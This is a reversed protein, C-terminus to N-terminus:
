QIIASKRREELKIVTSKPEFNKNLMLMYVYDMGDEIGNGKGIPLIDKKEGIILISNNVIYARPLYLENLYLYPGDIGADVSGMQVCFNCEEFQHILKLGSINVEYDSGVYKTNLMGWFKAPDNSSISLYILYEPIWVSVGGYLAELGLWTAYTDVNGNVSNAGITNIRFIDKDKSVYQLLFTNKIHEEFNDEPYSLKPMNLAFYKGEKETFTSFWLNLIFLMIIVAYILNLKSFNFKKQIIKMLVSCGVGSLAYTSLVFLFMSRKVHHAMSMGPVFKWFIYFLASGTAILLTTVGLIIFFLTRKKRWSGMSFILLIFAVAGIEGPNVDVNLSDKAEILNHFIRKPTNLQIKAGISDKYSFGIKKSSVERFELLPFLKISSLGLFVILIIFAVLISKILRRKFNKSILYFSFLCAFMISQYVFINLGGSLFQLSIIIGTLISYKLWKREYLAKWSFLLVLPVFGYVFYRHLDGRALWLAFHSFMFGIASIFAYRPNLKFNLMLCYMSIGSLLTTLIISLNVVAITPMILALITPYSIVSYVPHAHFPTGGLSHPTWHPFQGYELISKKIFEIPTLANITIEGLRTQTSSIFDNYFILTLVLLLSIFFLHERNKKLKDKLPM